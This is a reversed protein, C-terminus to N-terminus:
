TPPAQRARSMLSGTAQKDHFAFSLNQLTDYYDNRIRYAIKQSLGEAMYTQAWSFLGRTLGLLAIVIALFVLANVSRDPNTPDLVRDIGIGLVRPVALGAISAGLTAGYAVFLATRHYRFLMSFLRIVAAM